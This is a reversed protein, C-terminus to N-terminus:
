RDEEGLVPVDESMDFPIVLEPRAHVSRDFFLARGPRPSWAVLQGAALASLEQGHVDFAAWAGIDDTPGIGLTAKLRSVGRWWGLVHIGHEPGHRLLSRLDDGPSHRSAADKRDLISQIVDVGFLVLYHEPGANGDMTSVVAALAEPVADAEVLEVTNGAARLATSLESAVASSGAALPALTFRAGPRAVGLVASSLASLVDRQASGLVALHRGPEPGLVAGATSSALDVRQGVAAIPNGPARWRPRVAGDFLAPPEADGAGYTDLLEPQLADLTGAATADPIHAVLNGHELGSDHNVVAHWRPTELAAGNSEALVRRAKPLAVRLTFQEFVAPKGWFAEIGAVDQSALVLHIGASRGRRAIDELLTTARTTVADRQAFLCQFEDIVAVIRPWGGDPDAGRLEDLKSVEHSKAANARERLRDALFELLALGFERDTNVNIGVLRAHPLWSPDKRGPAFQRFSVGEKFDMLYLELEGPSYRAALSGLMAYLFNTKGSGSPGGILVHPNADAISLEVDRGEARGVVCRLGGASSLTGFREPMLDAFEPPRARGALAADALAGCAATVAPVAPPPDLEVVLESGTVGCRAHQEDLLRVSEVASNVVLPVDLLVLQVGASLGNRAIRQLAREDSPELPEGNGFLVVVQWPERVAGTADAHQAASGYGGVLAREHARRIDAAVTDLLSRLRTPDYATLLGARTLPRLGPLSGTLAGTDWLHIRIQSSAVSSVVRLLLSEVVQEARPRLEVPGTLYVHSADLLPLAAPFSQEGGPRVTGIRWLQPPPERDGLLGAAVDGGLWDEWPRWSAAVREDAVLAALESTSDGASGALIEDARALTGSLVEALPATHARERIEPDTRATATGLQLVSLEFETREYAHAAATHSEEVARLTGAVAARFRGYARTIKRRRRGPTFRGQM